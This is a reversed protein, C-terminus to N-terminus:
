VWDMKNQIEAYYEYKNGKAYEHPNEICVNGPMGYLTPRRQHERQPETGAAYENTKSYNPLIDALYIYFHLSAWPEVYLTHQQM